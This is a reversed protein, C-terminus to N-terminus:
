ESEQEQQQSKRENTQCGRRVIFHGRTAQMVARAMGIGAEEKRGFKRSGAAIAVWFERNSGDSLLHQRLLRECWERRGAGPVGRMIVLWATSRHLPSPPPFSAGRGCSVRDADDAAALGVLTSLEAFLGGLM